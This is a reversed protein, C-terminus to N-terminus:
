TSDGRMEEPLGSEAHEGEIVLFNHFWKLIEQIKPTQCKNWVRDKVPLPM